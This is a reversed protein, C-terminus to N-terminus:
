AEAYLVVQQELQTVMDLIQTLTASNDQRRLTQLIAIVYQGYIENWVAHPQDLRNVQEVISQSRIYYDLVKQPDGTYRLEQLLVQDNATHMDQNLSMANMLVCSDLRSLLESVCHIQDGTADCVDCPERGALFEQISKGM